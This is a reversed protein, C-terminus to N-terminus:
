RTAGQTQVSQSAPEAGAAPAAGVEAHHGVSDSTMEMFAAELSAREQYLEHLALVHEFALDGVQATTLDQVELAGDDTPVVTIRRERLTEALRGPQPSRVRVINGSSQDIFAQTPVDALLRGRGVVVLHDATLAMESMLHSSVFITRGEAAMARMFQRIWVIGEPDLGTVPEDFM